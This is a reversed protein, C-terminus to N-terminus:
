VIGKVTLDLTAVGFSDYKMPASTILGFTTLGAYGAATTAICAVPVDLVSQVVSLVSDAETRPMTVSVRLNTASLRRIIKTTGDDYTKIYSYTFPEASAGYQAGGWEGAGFLPTFDGPVIMGLGVTAGTAATISITLEAAPRIPIGTFVLNRKIKPTTFLYEYWDIPDETLFGTRTFIVAGGASQKLTVTYQAGTIGYLALANFYGPTLVYALSTVDTAATSTYIDFPAYRDTPAMDAWRTPDNEPLPSAASTHALACKYKRHTTARIRIDGVAYVVAAGSWATETASPEAITTGAGIMYDTITIPNIINM